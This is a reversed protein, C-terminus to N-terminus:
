EESGGAEGPKQLAKLLPNEAEEEEKFQKSDPATSKKESLLEEAEERTLDPNKQM